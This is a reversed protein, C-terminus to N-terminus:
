RLRQRQEVALATSPAGLVLSLLVWFAANVQNDDFTIRAPDDGAGVAFLAAMTAIVVVGAVTRYATLYARDREGRMREDLVDDPLDAQSRVALRVAVFAVFWAAIGVVGGVAGFWLWWAALAITAAVYAAVVLLLGRRSRLRDYYRDNMLQQARSAVAESKRDSLESRRSM